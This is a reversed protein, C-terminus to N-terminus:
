RSTCAWCVIRCDEGGYERCYRLALNEAQQRSGAWAYGLAGNSAKALAGCGRCFWVRAACTNDGSCRECRKVAEIIAEQPNRYNYSYGWCGTNQSYAIAGYYGAETKEASFGFFTTATVLIVLFTIRRM